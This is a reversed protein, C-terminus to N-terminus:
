SHTATLSRLLHEIEPDLLQTGAYTLHNSDFYLLKGNLSIPCGNATCLVSDPSVYPVTRDHGLINLEANGLLRDPALATARSPECEAISNTQSVCEAPSQPLTPNDLIVGVNVGAETEDRIFSQFANRWLAVQEGQSPVNGNSDVILGIYQASNQTVVIAKPKLSSLLTSGSHRVAVCQATDFPGNPLRNVEIPIFPCGPNDLLVIRVGQRKAVDSLTDFWSGAHSDGALAVTTTASLDGGFCYSAGGPATQFHCSPVFTGAAAVEANFSTPTRESSFLWTAGAVALVGLTIALGLAFTWYPSRTIRKLYRIPSEVYRFAVYAVGLSAVAACTRIPVSDSNLALVTLVIFPWHWLYWSYSLRGTWQMGRVSLARPVPSSRLEGSGTGALILLATGAVPVLANVGPFTTSSNFLENAGILLALGVVGTARAVLSSVPRRIALSGLFGGAAFEWARTPLSFFAWSSGQNTWVVNLAFSAAFVGTFLVLAGYRTLAQRRRFLVVLGLVFFPWLLYFQEEVGLSWTHLFPSKNPNSGFYNQTEQAFLINSLYLAAAGGQKATVLMDFPNVIALSVVLTVAVMLALGPVLRRIRRAWFDSFPVAGAATSDELLRRTILYGSIVFFVDVGIFGGSFGPIGAHYGVILLIAVARLGEIDSRFGSSRTKHRRSLLGDSPDPSQAENQLIGTM